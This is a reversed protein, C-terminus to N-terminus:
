VLSCPILDKLCYMFNAEFRIKDKSNLKKKKVRSLSFIVFATVLLIKTGFWM